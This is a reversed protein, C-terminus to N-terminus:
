RGHWLVYAFLITILFACWTRYQKFFRSLIYAFVFIEAATVMTGFFFAIYGSFGSIGQLGSRLLKAMITLIWASVYLVIIENIAAQKRSRYGPKKETELTVPFSDVSLNGPDLLFGRFFLAPQVSLSNHL